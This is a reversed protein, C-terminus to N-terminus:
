ARRRCRKRYPATHLFHWALRMNGLFSAGGPSLAAELANETQAPSLSSFDAPLPLLWWRRLAWGGRVRQLAIAAIKDQQIHLGIQWCGFAM